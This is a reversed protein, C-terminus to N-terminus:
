HSGTVDVVQQSVPKKVTSSAIKGQLLRYFHDHDFRELDAWGDTWSSFHIANSILLGNIGENGPALLPESHLIANAFNKLIALHQDGGGADAAVDCHWNEPRGFPSTNTKNFERESIRNRYFEIHNNEVVLKGMDGSIELRNTGPAEGTSTIYVGSAGNSYEMYATVDDEVEINYYKGYGVFSRIRSPMGTIWQLLDLNHPNQNILTGGGEGAWTSRWTGSDHYAQPRYWNTVIWVVRKLSGLEGSHVIDRVKRYVPNTRQNYMIGFVKDSAEASTNMKIVQKTYVGAPKEILVHLGHNFGEIALKPHDHHPSAVIVADITGSEYMEKYNEFVGIGPLTERAWNRREASLDCVSSLEMGPVKGQSIQKVHSSGMNGLGIIGVRVKQM